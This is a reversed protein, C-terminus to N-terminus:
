GVPCLYSSLLRNKEKFNEILDHAIELDMVDTSSSYPLGLSALKLNIYRLTRERESSDEANVGLGLTRKKDM